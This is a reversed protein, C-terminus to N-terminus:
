ICLTLDHIAGHAFDCDNVALMEMYKMRSLYKINSYFTMSTNQFENSPDDNNWVTAQSKSFDFSALNIQNYIHTVPVWHNLYM